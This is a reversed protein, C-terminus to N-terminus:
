QVTAFEARGVGGVGFLVPSELLSPPALLHGTYDSSNSLAPSVKELGRGEDSDAFPSGRAPPGAALPIERKESDNIAFATISSRQLSVVTSGAPPPPSEGGVKTSIQLGWTAM